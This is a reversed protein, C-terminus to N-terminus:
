ISAIRENLADAAGHLGKLTEATNDISHQLQKARDLLTGMGVCCNRLRAKAQKIEEKVAALVKRAQGAEEDAERRHRWSDHVTPVYDAYVGKEFEMLFPELADRAYSDRPLSAVFAKVADIEERKTM